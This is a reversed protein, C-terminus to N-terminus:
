GLHIQLYKSEKNDVDLGIDLVEMEDPGHDVWDSSVGRYTTFKVPTDDPLGELYKKLDKVTM